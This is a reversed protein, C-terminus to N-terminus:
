RKPQDCPALIREAESTMGAVYLHWTRSRESAVVLPLGNESWVRAQQCQAGRQASLRLLQFHTFAMLAREVTMERANGGASASLIHLSENLHQEAQDSAGLTVLTEGAESLARAADFRARDNKPDADVLTRLWTVAQLQKELGAQLQGQRAMAGGIGLLLYAEAQRLDANLPDARTLESLLAFGKEHKDQSLAYQDTALRLVHGHMSYIVGLSRRFVPNEPHSSVLSQMITEAREILPLGRAPDGSMGRYWGQSSHAYALNRRDDPEAPHARSMEQALLMMRNAYDLASGLDDVFFAMDGLKGYNRVLERRLTDNAADSAVLRLRIDLSKRYSALAGANDGLRTGQVDGVQEYAAALDRRLESDGGQEAALGDLYALSNQVLTQRAATAGPLDKIARHVEFLLTDALKRVSAFHREARAREVRAVHAQWSTAIIGAVLSLLLLAGIATSVKHRNVFKGLLYRVSAGHATVPFGSLHNRVDDDLQQVSSYRKAPEKQLAM